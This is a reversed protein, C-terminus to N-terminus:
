MATMAMFLMLVGVGVNIKLLVKVTGVYYVFSLKIFVSSCLGMMWEGMESVM